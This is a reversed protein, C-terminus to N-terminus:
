SNKRNEIKQVLLKIRNEIEENSVRITFRHLYPYICSTKIKEIEEETLSIKEMLNYCAHAYERMTHKGDSKSSAWELHGGIIENIVCKIELYTVVNLPPFSQILEYANEAYYLKMKQYSERSEFNETENRWKEDKDLHEDLLFLNNKFFNIIREYIEKQNLSINHEM